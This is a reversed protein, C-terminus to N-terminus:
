APILPVPNVRLPILVGIVRVAPWLAVKLAANVGADAPLPLPLTVMVEFAEM